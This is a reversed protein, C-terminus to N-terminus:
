ILPNGLSDFSMSPIIGSIIRAFKKIFTEISGQQKAIAEAYRKIFTEQSYVSMMDLYVTIFGEKQLEMLAKSVLSSKGYRRPAYLTLNNGGSLTQKIRLLEEERDYFYEGRVVSGFKFPNVSNM